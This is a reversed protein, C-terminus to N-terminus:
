KKMENTKKRVLELDKNKRLKMFNFSNNTLHLDKMNEEFKAM